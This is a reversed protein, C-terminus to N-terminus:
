RLGEVSRNVKSEAPIKAELKVSFVFAIFLCWVGRRIADTGTVGVAREKNCTFVDM